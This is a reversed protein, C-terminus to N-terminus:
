SVDAAEACICTGGLSSPVLNGPDVLDLLVVDKGLIDVKAATEKTLWPKVVNWIVTFTSPANIVAVKGLRVVKVIVENSGEENKPTVDDVVVVM